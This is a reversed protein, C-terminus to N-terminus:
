ARRESPPLFPIKTALDKWNEQMGKDKQPLPTEAKYFNLRAKGDKKM